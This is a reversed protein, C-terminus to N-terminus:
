SAATACLVFTDFVCVLLVEVCIMVEDTPFAAGVRSVHGSCNALLGLSARNLQINGWCLRISLERITAAVFGSQSVCSKRYRFDIIKNHDVHVRFQV